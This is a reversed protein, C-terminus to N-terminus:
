KYYDDDDRFDEPYNLMRELREKEDELYEYAFIMEDLIGYFDDLHLEGNIAYRQQRLDLVKREFEKLKEITENDLKITEM